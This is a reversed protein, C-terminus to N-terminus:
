RPGMEWVKMAQRVFKAVPIKGRMSEPDSEDPAIMATVADRSAEYIAVAEYHEDLVVFVVADWTKRLDIEGLRPGAKSVRAFLRRGKIQLRESRGNSERVADFGEQRVIAPKLSLLRIAEYEAVEGTVGLPRGTLQYYRVAVDKAQRLVSMLEDNQAEVKTM